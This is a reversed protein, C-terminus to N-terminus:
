PDSRLRHRLALQLQLRADPDDLTAGFMTRLKRLRYRVTQPHAHLAAATPIVQGQARLWALLTEALTRRSGPSLQQLPALAHAAVHDALGPEWCTLLTLLHDDCVLVGGGSLAGAHLLQLGRSSLRYSLRAGSLGVTPGLTARRGALARRVSALRGPTDPEPVVVRAVDDIVAAITGSGIGRALQDADTGDVSAVAVVRPLSWRAADAAAQLVADAPPDPQVLLTVLRRRTTTWDHAADRQEDLYGEAAAGALADIFGFLASALIYLDTPTLRAAAHEVVYAWIARAGVTLVSRLADVRHGEAYETRGLAHFV